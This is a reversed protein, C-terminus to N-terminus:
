TPSSFVRFSLSPPAMFSVPDSQNPNALMMILSPQETSRCGYSASIRNMDCSMNNTLVSARDAPKGFHWLLQCGLSCQLDLSFARLLDFIFIKKLCSKLEFMVHIM